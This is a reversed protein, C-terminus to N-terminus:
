LVAVKVLCGKAASGISGALGFLDSSTPFFSPTCDTDSTPYFCIAKGQYNAYRCYYKLNNGDLPLARKLFTLLQKFVLM